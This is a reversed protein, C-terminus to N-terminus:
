AVIVVSLRCVCCVCCRGGGAGGGRVRQAAPLVHAPARHTSTRHVKADVIDMRVGRVPEGAIGGEDCFGKFATVITDRVADLDRVGTTANVLVNTPGAGDGDGPTGYWCWVRKAEALQWGYRIPRVVGSVGM